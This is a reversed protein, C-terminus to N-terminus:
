RRVYIDYIAGRWLRACCCQTSLNNAKQAAWFFLVTIFIAAICKAQLLSTLICTELCLSSRFDTPGVAARGRNMELSLRKALDTSRVYATFRIQITLLQPVAEVMEDLGKATM